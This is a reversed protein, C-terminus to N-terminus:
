NSSLNELPEFQSEFEPLMYVLFLDATEMHLGKELLEGGRLKQEDGVSRAAHTGHVKEQGM